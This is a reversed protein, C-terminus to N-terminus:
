PLPSFSIGGQWYRGPMPRFAVVAYREDTINFCQLMLRYPRGKWQDAYQLAASGSHYPELYQSEDTTVFRYGAYVHSYNFYWKRFGIDLGGQVQYRPTYPIQRGISGDNPAYSKTTTALTYGTNVNLRVQWDRRRFSLHNETEIGRSHVTAINHPTWIAGGYWIIWDRISRNFFSLDHQLTWSGARVQAGYGLEQTWGTEPKLNPNGGPVYYLENLTPARFTRQVNGRLRLWPLLQWGANIGPMLENRSDIQEDRLNLALKLRGTATAYSYAAALAAKRQEKREGAQNDMWSFHLPVFVQLHHRGRGYKYGLEQFYQQTTNQSALTVAPDKYDMQDRLFAAKAYWGGAPKRFSWDLLVRFSADEQHKLSLAEFLAPPVQRDYQQWWLSLSVAQRETIRWGGTGLLGAGSLRSHKMHQQRGDADTYPFDNQASQYMGRLSLSLKKGSYGTRLLANYQGFSGAGLATTLKYQPVASFVPADNELLLAGGVNGSGWLAASSGYVVSIRDYFSVPLMSVDAVGLAANQLPVGNWYVQSQASSAGRFNLTSLANFGYSKIFVPTQRSLLQAVNQQEYLQRTVSDIGIIKQGPAYRNVKDDNSLVPTRGAKVQQEKLTDSLVQAAANRSGLCGLM